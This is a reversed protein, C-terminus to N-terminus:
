RIGMMMNMDGALSQDVPWVVWYSYDLLAATNSCSEVKIIRRLRRLRWYLDRVFVLYKGRM